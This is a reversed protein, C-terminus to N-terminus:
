FSEEVQQYTKYAVRLTKKGVEVNLLYWYYMRLDEDSVSQTYAILGSFFRRSKKESQFYHVKQRILFDNFFLAM